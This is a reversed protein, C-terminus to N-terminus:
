FTSQENTKNEAENIGVNRAEETQGAERKKPTQRFCIGNTSLKLCIGRRHNHPNRATLLLWCMVSVRPWLSIRREKLEGLRM